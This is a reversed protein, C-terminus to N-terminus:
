NSTTSYTWRYSQTREIHIHTNEIPEKREEREKSKDIEMIGGVSTTMLGHPNMRQVNHKTYEEKGRKEKNRKDREEEIRAKRDNEASQVKKDKKYKRTTRATERFNKNVQQPSPSLTFALFRLRLRFAVLFPLSLIFTSSLYMM